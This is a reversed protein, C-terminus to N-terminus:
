ECRRGARRTANRLARGLWTDNALAEQPQPLKVATTTTDATRFATHREIDSKSANHLPTEKFPAKRVKISVGTLHPTQKVYGLNFTPHGVSQTQGVPTPPRVKM